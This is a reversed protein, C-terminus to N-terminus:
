QDNTVAAYLVSAAPIKEFAAHLAQSKGYNRSFKIGHIQPFQVKMNEIISWSLDTSGDDIFWIEYSLNATKCVSNIRSFLEELSEEENLLPIIISLNMLSESNSIIVEFYVYRKVKLETKYPLALM